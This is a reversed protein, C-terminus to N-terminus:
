DGQWAGRWGQPQQGSSACGAWCSVARVQILSPSFLLYSRAIALIQRHDTVSRAEWRIHVVEELSLELTQLASIWHDQFSYINFLNPMIIYQSCISIYLSKAFVEILMESDNGSILFETVVPAQCNCDSSVQWSCNATVWLVSRHSMLAYVWCCTNHLSSATINQQTPPSSFFYQCISKFLSLFNIILHIFLPCTNSLFTYCFLNSWGVCRVSLLYLLCETQQWCRGWERKLRRM